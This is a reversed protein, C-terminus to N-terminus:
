LNCNNYKESLFKEKENNITIITNKLCKENENYIAIKTNKQQVNEMKM